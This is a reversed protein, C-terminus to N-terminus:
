RNEEIIEQLEAPIDMVPKRNIEMNGDAGKSVV